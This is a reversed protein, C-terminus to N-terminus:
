GDAQNDRGQAKKSLRQGYGRRMELLVHRLHFQNHGLLSLFLAAGNGRAVKWRRSIATFAKDAKMRTGQHAGPIAVTGAPATCRPM